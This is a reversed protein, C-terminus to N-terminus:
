VISFKVIAEIIQDNNKYLLIYSGKSLLSGNVFLFRAFGFKMFYDFNSELKLLCFSLNFKDPIEICVIEEIPNLSIL